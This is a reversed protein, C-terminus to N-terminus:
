LTVNYKEILSSNGTKRYEDLDHAAQRIFSEAKGDGSIMKAKEIVACLDPSQPDMAFMSFMIEGKTMVDQEDFTGSLFALIDEKVDQDAYKRFGFHMIQYKLRADGVLFAAKLVGIAQHAPMKIFIEQAGIKGSFTREISFNAKAQDVSKLGAIVRRQSPLAMNKQLREKQVSLAVERKFKDDGCTQLVDLLLLSGGEPMRWRILINSSVDSASFEMVAGGTSSVRNSNQAVVLSCILSVGAVGLFFLKRTKM